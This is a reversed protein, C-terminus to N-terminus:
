FLRTQAGPPLEIHADQQVCTLAGEFDGYRNTPEAYGDENLGVAQYRETAEHIHFGVFREGELRNTHQHSRGNCRRLRFWRGSEAVRVPLIVSFDLVFRANQRLILRYTNGADGMLTAEGETHGVKPKMRFARDGLSFPLVKREQLLTAIESDTYIVPIM